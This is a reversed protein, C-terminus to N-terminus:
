LRTLVDSTIQKVGKDAYIRADNTNNKTWCNLMVGKFDLNGISSADLMCRGIQLCFEIHSQTASSVVLQLEIDKDVLRLNRIIAQSFSIFTFAGNTIVAKTENVLNTLQAVSYNSSAKIEIVPVLNNRKCCHLYETLTPVRTGAYEDDFWSGADLAKIEALTLSSVSGSGDTTRDVTGDHMLIWHEDQTLQIDCEAGWFGLEGALDYAPLTNEPAGRSAGRHAIFSVSPKLEYVNKNSLKKVQEKLSESRLDSVSGDALVQAIKCVFHKVDKGTSSDIYDDKEEATVVFNFLTVQEGTPTGERHADIYIFSPKNQVQVSRDFEMAVRNGSVYGAGAKIIYANDSPTVLFGDDIFWEKGNQDILSQAADSDMKELRKRADYQWTSADVTINTIEAIDKYELVVSRVLTNGSVGPEDPEKPTLAHHEITILVGYESCYSGTWNFDFPGIDSAITSTYIVTDPSLRGRQEVQEQHVIHDTPVVDDPQPYEPRNPVNAFIMKDIVLAKEEANLQALLAKGAATLISKDTSNAM